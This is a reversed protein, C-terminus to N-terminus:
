ANVLNIRMLKYILINEVYILVPPPDHGFFSDDTTSDCAGDM